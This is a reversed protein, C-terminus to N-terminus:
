HHIGDTFRKEFGDAFKLPIIFGIWDASNFGDTSKKKYLREFVWVRISIRRVRISLIIM